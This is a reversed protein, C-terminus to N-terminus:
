TKELDQGVQLKTKVTDVRVGELEHIVTREGWKGERVPAEQPVPETKNARTKLADGGDEVGSPKKVNERCDDTSTSPNHRGGSYV